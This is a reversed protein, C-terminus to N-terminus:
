VDRIDDQFPSLADASALWIFLSRAAIYEAAAMEALHRPLEDIDIGQWEFGPVGQSRAILSGSSLRDKIRWTRRVVMKMATALEGRATAADPLEVRDLGVAWCLWSLAAWDAHAVALLEPVGAGDTSLQENIEITEPAAEAGAVGGDAGGDGHGPDPVEPECEITDRRLAVAGGPLLHSTDPPLWGPAGDAVLARIAARARGIRTAYVGAAHRIEEVSHALELPVGTLEPDPAFTEQGPWGDFGRFVVAAYSRLSEAAEASDGAIVDADALAGERDGRQFRLLARTLHTMRREPALLLSAEVLDSAASHSGPFVSALARFAAAADAGGVLADLVAAVTTDTSQALAEGWQAERDATLPVVHEARFRELAARDGTAVAGRAAVVFAQRLRGDAALARAQSPWDSDVPAAALLRADDDGRFAGGRDTTRLIQGDADMFTWRGTPQGGEYAGREQRIRADAYPSAEADPVRRYFPGDPQDDPPATFGCEQRLQGTTDFTRVIRAGEGKHVIEETPKGDESWSRDLERSRLVWGGRSEDYQALEPLGDPRAPCLRGDSLIARGEGDYFVELLFEGARYRECLRAAGTPVCCPRIREGDPSEPAYATVTGDLKGSVYNGERAVKGDRHYVFFPGDQVGAVFRARAFLTGDDRYLLREGDRVGHEDKRAVEWKALEADWVGTEPVAAPRNPTPAEPSSEPNADVTLLPYAM